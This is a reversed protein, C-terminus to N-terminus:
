APVTTLVFVRDIAKQLPWGRQFLSVTHKCATKASSRQNFPHKGGKMLLHNKGELNVVGVWKGNLPATMCPVGRFEFHVPALSPPGM